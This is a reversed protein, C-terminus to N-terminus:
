PKEEIWFRLSPEGKYQVQGIKLLYDSPESDISEVTLKIDGGLRKLFMILLSGKILELRPDGDGVKGVHERCARALDRTIVKGEMNGIQLLLADKTKM